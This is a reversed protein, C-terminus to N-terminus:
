GFSFVNAQFTQMVSVDGKLQVRQRCQGESRLDECSGRSPSVYLPGGSSLFMNSDIQRRLNPSTPTSWESPNLIRYSLKSSTSGSRSQLGRVSHPSSPCTLGTQFSSSHQSVTQMVEPPLYPLDSANFVGRSASGPSLMSICIRYHLTVSQSTLLPHPIGKDHLYEM